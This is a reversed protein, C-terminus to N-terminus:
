KKREGALNKLAQGLVRERIGQLFDVLERRPGDFFTRNHAVMLVASLRGSDTSFDVELRASTDADIVGCLGDGWVCTGVYGGRFFDADRVWGWYQRTDEASVGIDSRITPPERGPLLCEVLIRSPETLTLSTKCQLFLDGGGEVLTVRGSRLAESAPGFFSSPLIIRTDQLGVIEGKPILVMERDQSIGTVDRSSYARDPLSVVTSSEGGTAVAVCVVLRAIAATQARTGM